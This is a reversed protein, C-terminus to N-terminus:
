GFFFFDREGSRNGRYDNFTDEVNEDNEKEKNEKKDGKRKGGKHGTFAEEGFCGHSIGTIDGTSKTQNTKDDEDNESVFGFSAKINQMFYEFGERFFEPM